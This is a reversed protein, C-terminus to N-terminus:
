RLGLAEVAEHAPERLRRQVPKRHRRASLVNSHEVLDTRAFASTLAIWSLIGTIRCGSSSSQQNLLNSGSGRAKSTGYVASRMAIHSLEVPTFEGALSSASMNVGSARSATRTQCVPLRQRCTIVRALHRLASLDAKLGLDRHRGSGETACCLQRL